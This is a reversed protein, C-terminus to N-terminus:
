YENSVGKSEIWENKIINVTLVFTSANCLQESYSAFSSFQDSWPIQKCRCCDDVHVSNGDLILVVTTDCSRVIHPLYLRLSLSIVNVVVSREDPFKPALKRKLTRALHCPLCVEYGIMGHYRPPDSPPESCKTPHFIPEARFILSSSHQRYIFVGRVHTLNGM